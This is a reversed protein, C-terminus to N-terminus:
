LSWAKGNTTEKLDVCGIQQGPIPDYALVNEAIYESTKFASIGRNRLSRLVSYNVADTSPVKGNEKLASSVEKDWSEKKQPNAKLYFALIEDIDEYSINQPNSKGTTSLVKALYEGIGAKFANKEKDKVVENYYSDIFQALNLETAGPIGDTAPLIVELTKTVVDAEEASFFSPDWSLNETQTTCGQIMSVVAASMTVGGVSLGINKLASRRKM